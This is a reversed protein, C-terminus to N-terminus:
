NIVDITTCILGESITHTNGNEEYTGSFSITVQDGIANAGEDIKFVMNVNSKSNLFVINGVDSTTFWDAVFGSTENTETITSHFYFGNNEDTWIDYFKGIAADNFIESTVQANDFSVLNGDLLYSIGSTCTNTPDNNNPTCGAGIIFLAFVLLSLPLVNKLFSKKM